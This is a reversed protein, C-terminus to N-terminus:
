IVMSHKLTQEKDLLAHMTYGCWIRYVLSVSQHEFYRLMNQKICPKDVALLWKFCACYNNFFHMKILESFNTTQKINRYQIDNGDHQSIFIKM